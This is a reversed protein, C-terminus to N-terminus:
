YNIIRNVEGHRIDFTYIRNLELKECYYDECKRSWKIKHTVPGDLERIVIHDQSVGWLLFDATIWDVSFTDLGMINVQGLNGPVEYSTQSLCVIPALFLLSLIFFKM